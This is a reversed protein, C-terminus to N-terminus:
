MGGRALHQQIWAARAAATASDEPQPQQQPVAPVGARSALLDAEGSRAPDFAAFRSRINAPNGVAISRGAEDSVMWNEFGLARMMARRDEVTLSGSPAFSNRGFGETAEYPMADPVPEGTRKLPLLDERDGMYHEYESEPVAESYIRKVQERRELNIAANQADSLGPVAVPDGGAIIRKFDGYTINEPFWEAPLPDRGWTKGRILVPMIQEGTRPADTTPGGLTMHENGGAAAGRSAAEPNDAFYSAGRWQSPVFENFDYRTSHYGPQTYGMEAARAARAEPSMDLAANATRLVPGAGLAGAPAGVPMVTSGLASAIAGIRGGSDATPLFPQDLADGRMLALTPETGAHAGGALWDVAKGAGQGISTMLDALRNRTASVTPLILPDDM